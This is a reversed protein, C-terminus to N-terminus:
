KAFAAIIIAFALVFVSVGIMFLGAAVPNAQVGEVKGMCLDYIDGLDIYDFMSKRTFHLLTISIAAQFQWTLSAIVGAGFALNRIIGSDPDSFLMLTIMLITVYFLYVTRLRPVALAHLTQALSRFFSSSM